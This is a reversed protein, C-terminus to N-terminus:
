LLIQFPRRFDIYRKGNAKIKNDESERLLPMMINDAGKCLIYVVNNRDGRKKVCVTMRKRISDFPIENLLEWVEVEGSYSNYVEITNTTRNIFVFGMKSAGSILAVEDPSSSSYKYKAFNEGSCKEAISSHCLSLVSLFQILKNKESNCDEFSQILNNAGPGKLISFASQDNEFNPESEWSDGYIRGGSFYKKFEMLNQTLTGTKDSFIFEVQGLEEILESTRAQAAKGAVKDFMLDDYFILWSQFLKVIELAVYLSIPILHSYAVIFTFFKQILSSITIDQNIGIYIEIYQNNEYRFMFNMVSFVLAIIILFLFVSLLLNNMVRMLNSM